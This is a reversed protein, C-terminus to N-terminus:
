DLSRYALVTLGIGAVWIMYPNEVFYSYLILALAISLLRLNGERKGLRLFYLGLSGFILGAMLNNVSFNM